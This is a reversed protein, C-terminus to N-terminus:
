LKQWSKRSRCSNSSSFHKGRFESFRIDQDLNVMRANQMSLVQIAETNWHETNVFDFQISSEPIEENRVILVPEITNSIENDEDSLKKTSVEGGGTGRQM